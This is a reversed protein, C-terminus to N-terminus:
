FTFSLSYSVDSYNFFDTLIRIHFVNCARKPCLEEDALIMQTPSSRFSAMRYQMQSVHGAHPTHFIDCM